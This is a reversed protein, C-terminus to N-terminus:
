RALQRVTCRSRDAILNEKPVLEESM